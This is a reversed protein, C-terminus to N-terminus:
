SEEGKNTRAEIERYRELADEGFLEVFARETMFYCAVRGAIVHSEIDAGTYTREALEVPVGCLTPQAM